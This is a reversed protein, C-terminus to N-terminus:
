NIVTKFYEYVLRIGKKYEEYIRKSIWTGNLSHQFGWDKDEKDEKIPYVPIIIAMCRIKACHCFITSDDGFRFKERWRAKINNKKMIRLIDWKYEDLAYNNEFSISWGPDKRYGDTDLILVVDNKKIKGERIFKYLEDKHEGEVDKLKYSKGYRGKCCRGDPVREIMGNKEEYYFCEENDYGLANDWERLLNYCIKNDLAGYMKNDDERVYVRGIRDYVTDKHAALLIM